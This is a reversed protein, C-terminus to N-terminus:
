HKPQVLITEESLGATVEVWEATKIGTKVAIRRGRRNMVCSDDVLYEAPIVLAHQHKRIIINAQLATGSLLMEPMEAFEAEAIFSQERADFAPLIRTIKAKYSKTKETNLEVVLMQGVALRKVDDESILLRIIMKGSSVEALTEGKKVLEGTTKFLQLMVGAAPAQISLQQLMEQQYTLSAEAQLAELRLSERLDDIQLNMAELEKKSQMFALRVKEWESQSVAGASLLRDYRVFQLSDALHKEEQQGKRALLQGLLASQDGTNQYAYHYQARSSELQARQADDEMRFLEDGAQISDGEQTLTALLRGEAQAIIVYQQASRVTGSAFVAEVIDKREPRVANQNSCGGIIIMTGFASFLYIPKM